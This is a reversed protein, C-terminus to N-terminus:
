DAAPLSLQGITAPARKPGLGLATLTLAGLKGDDKLSQDRQFRKLAEISNNDWKGDAPPPLYGRDQLAQEIEAYREPTPHLQRAPAKVKATKSKSSKSKSSKSKSSKSKAAAKAPAKPTDKTQAPAGTALALILACIVIGSRPLLV